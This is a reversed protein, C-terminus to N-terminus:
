NDKKVLIFGDNEIARYGQDYLFYYTNGSKTQYVSTFFDFDFNKAVLKSRTTKSKEEPNLESM